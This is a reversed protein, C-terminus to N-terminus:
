NAFFSGMKLCVESLDIKYNKLSQKKNKLITNKLIWDRSYIKLRQKKTNRILKTDKLVLDETGM